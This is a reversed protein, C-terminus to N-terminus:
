GMWYPHGSDRQKFEVVRRFSIPIPSAGELIGSPGASQSSASSSSATSFDLSGSSDGVAPSRLEEDDSSDSDDIGFTAM